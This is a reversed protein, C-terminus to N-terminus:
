HDLKAALTVHEVGALARTVLCAAKADEAFKTFEEDSMGPVVGATDLSSSVMPATEPKEVLVAAV